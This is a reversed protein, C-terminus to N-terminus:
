YGNLINRIKWESKETTAYVNIINWKKRLLYTGISIHMSLQLHNQEELYDCGGTSLFNTNDNSIRSNVDVFDSAHCLSLNIKTNIICLFFVILM